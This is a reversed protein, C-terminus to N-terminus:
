KGGARFKMSPNRSSSINFTTNDPQTPQPIVAPQQAGSQQNSDPRQESIKDIIGGFLKNLGGGFGSTAGPVIPTASPASKGGTTNGIPM